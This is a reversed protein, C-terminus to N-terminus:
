ATRKDEVAAINAEMDAQLKAMRLKTEQVESSGSGIGEGSSATTTAAASSSEEAVATEQALAEPAAAVAPTPDAVAEVAATEAAVGTEAGMENAAQSLAEAGYEPNAQAVQVEEAAVPQASAQSM